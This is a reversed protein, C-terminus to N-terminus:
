ALKRDRVRCERCITWGWGGPIRYIWSVHTDPLGPAQVARLRLTNAEAYPIYMRIHRAAAHECYGNSSGHEAANADDPTLQM